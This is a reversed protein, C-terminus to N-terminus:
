LTSITMIIHQLTSLIAFTKINQLTKNQHWGSFQCLLNCLDDRQKIFAASYTVTTHIAPCRFTWLDCIKLSTDTVNFQATATKKPQSLKLARITSKKQDRYRSLTWSSIAIDDSNHIAGIVCTAHARVCEWGARFVPRGAPQSPWVPRVPVSLYVLLALSRMCVIGATSFLRECPVSTAPISM